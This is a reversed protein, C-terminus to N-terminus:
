RIDPMNAHLKNESIMSFLRLNNISFAVIILFIFKGLTEIDAMMSQALKNFLKKRKILMTRIKATIPCEKVMFMRNIKSSAVVIARNASPMPNIRPIRLTNILSTACIIGM